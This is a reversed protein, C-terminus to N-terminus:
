WTQLLFLININLRVDRRHHMYNTDNSNASIHITSINHMMKICSNKKWEEELIFTPQEIASTSSMHLLIHCCKWCFMIHANLPPSTLQVSSIVWSMWSCCNIMLNSQKFLCTPNWIRAKIKCTNPNPITAM